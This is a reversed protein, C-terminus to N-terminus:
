ADEPIVMMSWPRMVTSIHGPKKGAAEHELRIKYTSRQFSPISVVEGKAVSGSINYAVHQGVAIQVGRTDTNWM